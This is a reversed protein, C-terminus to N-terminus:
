SMPIGSRIACAIIQWRQSRTILGDRKWEKTLRVVCRIYQGQNSADKACDALLDAMTSCDDVFLNTINTECEGIVLTPDTNSNPHPDVDDNCGDGDADPNCQIGITHLEYNLPSGCGDLDFVAITYSGTSPLVYSALEPDEWCSDFPDPIGDDRFELFVMDPGGDFASVGDSVAVTGEFLSFGPDMAASTRPVFITVVDGAIGNFYYYDWLSADFISNLGSHSSSVVDGCLEPAYVVPARSNDLAETSREIGAMKREFATLQQEESDTSIVEQSCAMVFLLFSLAFVQLFRAVIKM